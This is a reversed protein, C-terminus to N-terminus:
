WISKGGKLHEALRKSCVGKTATQEHTERCETYDETASLMSKKISVPDSVQGNFLVAHKQRSFSKSQMM